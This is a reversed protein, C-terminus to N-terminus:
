YREVVKENKGANEVETLLKATNAESNLGDSADTSEIAEITEDSTGERSSERVNQVYNKSATATQKSTSKNLEKLERGLQSNEINSKKNKSASTVATGSLIRTVEKEAALPNINKLVALQRREEESVNEIGSNIKDLKGSVDKDLKKKFLSIMGVIAQQANEHGPGVGKEGGDSLGLTGDTNMYRHFTKNLALLTGGWLGKDSKESFKLIADLYSDFQEVSVEPKNNELGGLIKALQDSTLAAKERAAQKSSIANKNGGRRIAEDALRNAEEANKTIKLSEKMWKVSALESMRMQRAFNSPYAGGRDSDLITKDTAVGGGFGVDRKYGKPGTSKVKSYLRRKIAADIEGEQLEFKPNRRDSKSKTKIKASTSGVSKFQKQLIKVQDNIARFVNGAKGKDSSSFGSQKYEQEFAKFKSVIQDLEKGSASFGKSATKTLERIIDDQAKTLKKRRKDIPTTIDVPIEIRGNKTAGDVEKMTDNVAKKGSGKVYEAEVPIKMAELDAM